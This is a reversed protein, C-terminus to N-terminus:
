WALLPAFSAVELVNPSAGCTEAACLIVDGEGPCVSEWLKAEALSPCEFRPASESRCQMQTSQRPKAVLRVVLGQESAVDLVVQSKVKYRPGSSNPFRSFICVFSHSSVPPRACPALLCGSM